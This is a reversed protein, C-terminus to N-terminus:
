TNQMAPLISHVQMLSDNKLEYNTFILEYNLLTNLLNHSFIRGKM